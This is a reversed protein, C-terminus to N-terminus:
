GLIQKLPKPGSWKAAQRPSASPAEALSEPLATHQQPAGAQLVERFRSGQQYAFRAPFPHNALQVALAPNMQAAEVFLSEVEDYDAHAQRMMEQSMDCRLRFSSEANERRDFEAAGAPDEFPDPRAAAAAQQEMSSLREALKQRKRREDQLAALPVTPETDEEGDSAESAPPADQQGSPTEGTFADWPPMGQPEPGHVQRRDTAAEHPILADPKATATQAASTDETLVDDLTNPRFDTQEQEM